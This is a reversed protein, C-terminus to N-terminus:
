IQVGDNRLEAVIHPPVLHDFFALYKWSEEGMEGRVRIMKPGIKVIRAYCLAAGFCGTDHWYALVDGVQLPAGEGGPITSGSARVPDPTQLAPTRTM